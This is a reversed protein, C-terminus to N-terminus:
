KGGQPHPVVVAGLLGQGSVRDHLVVQVTETEECHAVIGELLIGYGEGFKTAGVKTLLWM